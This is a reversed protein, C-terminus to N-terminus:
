DELSQTRYEDPLHRKLDVGDRLVRGIEVCAEPRHQQEDEAAARAANKRTSVTM